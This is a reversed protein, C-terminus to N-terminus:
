RGDVIQYVLTQKEGQSIKRLRQTRKRSLNRVDVPTCFDGSFSGAAGTAAM